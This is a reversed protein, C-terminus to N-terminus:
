NLKLMKMVVSKYSSINEKTENTLIQMRKEQYIEADDKDSSSKICEKNQDGYLKGFTKKVWSYEIKDEEQAENEWEEYQKFKSKFL